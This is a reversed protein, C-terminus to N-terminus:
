EGQYEGEDIIALAKSEDSLASLYQSEIKVIEAINDNVAKQLLGLKPTKSTGIEQFLGYFGDKKIGVQLEPNQQYKPNAKVWYQTNKGVTGTIKNFHQYYSTRFTKVVFKGVDRLAARTLEYITYQTRDVSSVYQVGKSNIKVVSKPMAM